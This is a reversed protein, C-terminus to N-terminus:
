SEIKNIENRLTKAFKIATSKDLCIVFHNNPVNFGVIKILERDEDHEEFYEEDIFVKIYDRDECSDIFRLDIKAM